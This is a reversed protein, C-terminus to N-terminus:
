SSLCITQGLIVMEEMTIIGDSIMHMWQNCSLNRLLSENAYGRSRLPEYLHGLGVAHLKKELSYRYRNTPETIIRILIAAENANFQCIQLMTSLEETNMMRLQELSRYGNNYLTVLHREMHLSKFTQQLGREYKQTINNMPFVIFVMSLPDPDVLSSLLAKTGKLRRMMLLSLPLIKMQINATEDTFLSCEGVSLNKQLTRHCDRFTDANLPKLIFWGVARELVAIQDNISTIVPRKLQVIKEVVVQYPLLFSNNGYTFYQELLHNEM